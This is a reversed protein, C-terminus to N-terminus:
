RLVEGTEVSRVLVNHETVDYIAFQDWTRALARAFDVSQDFLAFGEEIPWLGRPDRGITHRLQV